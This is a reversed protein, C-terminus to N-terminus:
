LRVREREVETAAAAAMKEAAERTARRVADRNSKQQDLRSPSKDTDGHSLTCNEYRYAYVYM